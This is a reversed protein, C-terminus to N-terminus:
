IKSKLLQKEKKCNKMGGKQREKDKKNQGDGPIKNEKM